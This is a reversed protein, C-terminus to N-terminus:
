LLIALFPLATGFFNILFLVFDIKDIDWFENYLNFIQILINYSALIINLKKYHESKIDINELDIKMLSAFHKVIKITDKLSIDYPKIKIYIDYKGESFCIFDEFGFDLIGLNKLLGRFERSENKWFDFLEKNISGYLAKVDRVFLNLVLRNNSTRNRISILINDIYGKNIATETM